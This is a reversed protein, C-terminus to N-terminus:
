LQSCADGAGGGLMEEQTKVAAAEPAAGPVFTAMEGPETTYTPQKGAKLLIAPSCCRGGPASQLPRWASAKWFSPGGELDIDRTQEQEQEQKQTDTEGASNSAYM